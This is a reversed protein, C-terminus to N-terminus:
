FGWQEIWIEMLEASVPGLGRMTESAEKTREVSITASLLGEDSALGRYFDLLKLAPKDRVDQDSPNKISELDRIWESFPVTKTKYKCEIAPILSSWKAHHPNMLHFFANPTKTLTRRRTQLAEVTIQALTDVPVWDIPMSGIDNPVKGLAKSTAVITPLWEDPNWLGSKTTPGAIQGVRFITTPICAKRSAITCMREAVHKSEGYGQKLVADANEFPLEPVVPGMDSTWAGITSVSSVFSLHANYKSELSFSIFERVGKIHPDEFSELPHNFNVKWANHIILDVKNLLSTYKTDDIGFHPEGFSVKLFEVRSADSLPTADLGKGKFSQIQRSQADSRNFCYVKSISSNILLSHLLYTGLSGTSGTLIVTSTPPLQIQPLLRAPIDETYKVVIHQVREHHSISTLSDGTVTKLLFHALQTVTSHAYIHQATIQPRDGVPAQLSIANRLITALQITQLSDLGSSYLDDDNNITEKNLLSCVVENVYRTINALSITEPLSRNLQQDASAYFADIEEKYDKNVAQRQTTGKPTTKFPKDRSSLKIMMKAIRGYNPVTENAQEVVPWIEDRFAPEDMAEGQQDWYPEVLLSTQFRGQGIVVVRHVKPHSEVMNELTVPNLKEGNSLVIVDDFRGHYKWLKPNSPHSVFLDKSAYETRDPFTHFIGHIARSTPRRPIVLEYLEDGRHQMEVGYAPHWEFYGWNDEGEPVLSSIIGMESSGILTMLKTYPLIRNGIETALPAGAYIVTNLTSLCDLGTQIQSIDDLIAPALLATNPKTAYITDMVLDVSVPKDPLNAFPTNHFIATVFCYLGMLHFFPTTALVLNSFGPDSPSAVRRGAPAPLFAVSDLTGVFGHTLPVPKPMGTTGSSHIIFAVDNEAATFTKTVPYPEPTNSSNLIDATAPVEYFETDKLLKKMESIQREKDHSYFFKHCETVGLIHQYAEDSLRTSPLLPTYGTKNCALIFILYFIDNRGMYAVTENKEAKGIQEEIWWSLANVTHALEGFSMDRFGQSVELGNPIICVRKQPSYKAVEDVVNTLLREGANLPIQPQEM